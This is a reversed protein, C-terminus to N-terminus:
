SMKDNSEGQEQSLENKSEGLEKSKDNTIDCQGQCM